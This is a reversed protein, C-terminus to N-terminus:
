SARLLIDNESIFKYNKNELFRPQDIKLENRVPQYFECLSRKIAEGANKTKYVATSSYINDSLEKIYEQIKLNSFEFYTEPEPLFESPIEVGSLQKLSLNFDDDFCSLYATNHRRFTQELSVRNELMNLIDVTTVPVILYRGDMPDLTEVLYKNDYTEDCCTLLIPFASEIFVIDLFLKGITDTKYWEKKVQM